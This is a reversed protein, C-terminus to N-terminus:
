TRNELNRAASGVFWKIHFKQPCAAECKGCGLCESARGGINTVVSNYYYKAAFDSYHRLNICNIIEPVAIQKPCNEMCYRCGTCQILNHAVLIDKVEDVAKKEEDSLPEPDKMTKINANMQDLNSMGSLIVAMGEFGAVFRLAYGAPDKGFKGYIEKASDPLNVLTGGKVPEMVIVPKNHKMCVEYVRRSQVGPDEFDMYNFQIQVFEVDPWETLIADLVEPTDHFSLGVHRIKGEKKLEFAQEYARCDRYHQLRSAGQAHMLFFDFYEVGCAELEENFVKRVDEESNFTNFSLKDALLYSERPYRSTLCTRLATESQGGIYVHATDFYNFGAKMFADVMKTTEEIDVNEGNMPLRMAGFGLKGKIEKFLEM